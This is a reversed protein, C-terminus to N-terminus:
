FDFMRRVKRLFINVSIIAKLHVYWFKRFIMVGLYEGYFEVYANLHEIMTEAIEAIGPREPLKGTKLLEETERFIWPNGLAGRAIAVSDCGTEDMMQKVHEASFADGSGIVPIDLADKVNKIISYDM